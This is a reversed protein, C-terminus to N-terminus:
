ERHNRSSSKTGTRPPSRRREVVPASSAQPTPGAAPEDGGSGARHEEIVSRIAEVVLEPEDLPIWHGSRRAVVHRGRSSLSAVEEQDHFREKSPDAATLVRLPLDGLDRAAGDVLAASAPVNEILSALAELTSSRVWFSRITRQLPAPIKGLLREIRGQEGSAAGGLVLGRAALRFLIRTVGFHSLFAARRSLFVGREIRRAKESDPAMWERPHPADVLVLGEVEGPYRDAFLRVVFGGYSHGVLVYPPAIAAAALARHLEEALVDARRPLRAPDSWGFGARDAAVVRTLEAVRTRVEGWSLSTGALASDLVVSPSGEGQRWLHIRLGGIDVLEGPPPLGLREQRSLMRHIVRGAVAAAALALAGVGVWAWIELTV